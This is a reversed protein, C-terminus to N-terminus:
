SRDPEPEPVAQPQSQTEKELMKVFLDEMDTLDESSVEKEVDGIETSPHFRKLEEEFDLM